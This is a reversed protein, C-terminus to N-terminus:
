RQQTTKVVADVGRIERLTLIEQQVAFFINCHLL